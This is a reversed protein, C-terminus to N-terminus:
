KKAAIRVSGDPARAVTVALVQPLTDILAEIAEVDYAGSLRLRGAREDALVIPAARYRQLEHLVDALPAGDFVLRGEQWAGATGVDVQRVPQLASRASADGRGTENGAHDTALLAQGAVLTRVQSDSESVEVAGELVTVEAGGPLRRVSFATGIDRVATSGARVIFPRWGHAVHFAAEGQALMFRRSRLRTEVRLVSGTNLTLRSGDRMTWHAQEGVATRIEETRWAPDGWWLAVAVAVVAITGAKKRLARRRQTQERAEALLEDRSPFCRRLAETFPAVVDRRPSPPAKSADAASSAAGGRAHM